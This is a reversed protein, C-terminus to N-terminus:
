NCKLDFYLSDFITCYLGTGVFGLALSPYFLLVSILVEIGFIIHSRDRFLKMKKLLLDVVVLIILVFPLAGPLLVLLLGGKDDFIGVKQLVSIWAFWSIAHLLFCFIIRFYPSSLAYLIQKKLM